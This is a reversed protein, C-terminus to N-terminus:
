CCETDPPEHIILYLLLDDAYIREIEQLWHDTVHILAHQLPAKVAKFDGNSYLSRTILHL